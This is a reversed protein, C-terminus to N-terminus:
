SRFTVTGAGGFEVEGFFEGELRRPAACRRICGSCRRSEGRNRRGSCVVRKTHDFRGAFFFRDDLARVAQTFGGPGV